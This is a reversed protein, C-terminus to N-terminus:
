AGALKSAGKYIYYAIQASLSARPPINYSDAIYQREISYQSHWSQGKSQPHIRFKAVYKNVHKFKMGMRAMRLWLDTDMVCHLSANLGGASVWSSRRILTGPQCIYSGVKQVIKNSWPPHYHRSIVGGSADIVEHNGFLLDIANAARMESASDISEPRIIDDSNLWTVWPLSAMEVGQNIANSQGGDPGSQWATIQTEYRKIIDVSGDNSGGDLIFVEGVSDCRLVSEICAPLYKAQNYSPIIVSIDSKM